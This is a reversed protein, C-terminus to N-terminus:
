TVPLSSRVHFLFFSFTCTAHISSIRTNYQRAVAEGDENTKWCNLLACPKNFAIYVMNTVLQNLVTDVTDDSPPTKKVSGKFNAVLHDRISRDFKLLDFVNADPYWWLPRGLTIESIDCCLSIAEQLHKIREVIHALNSKGICEGIQKILPTLQTPQLFCKYILFYQLHGSQEGLSDLLCVIPDRWITVDNETVPKYTVPAWFSKNSVQLFQQAIAVMISPDELVSALSAFKRNANSSSRRSPTSPGSLQSGTKSPTPNASKSTSQSNVPHPRRPLSAVANVPQPTALIPVVEAMRRTQFTEAEVEVWVLLNVNEIALYQGRKARDFAGYQKFQFRGYGLEIVGCCLYFVRGMSSDLVYPAEINEANPTCWLHRVNDLLDEPVDITKSIRNFNLTVLTLEPEHSVLGLHLARLM